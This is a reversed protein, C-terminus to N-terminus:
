KKAAEFKELELVIDNGAGIKTRQKVIGRGEAFWYEVEMKQPGIQFDLSTATRTRFEGAPVKVDQTRSVFEGKIATTQSMSDVSWKTEGAAPLPLLKLPPVIEKGAASFRYIGDQMVGITESLVNDGSTSKLRYAVVSVEEEGKDSKMKVKLKESREVEVLVQYKGSRYHWKNGVELPYYSSTLAVEQAAAAGIGLLGVLTGVAIGNWKMIFSEGTGELGPVLRANGPYFRAVTM